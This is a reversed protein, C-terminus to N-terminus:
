AYYPYLFHDKGVAPLYIPDLHIYIQVLEANMAGLLQRQERNLSTHLLATRLRQLNSVHTMIPHQVRDSWDPPTPRTTSPVQTQKSGRM